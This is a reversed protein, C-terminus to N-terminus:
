NSGTVRAAHAKLIAGLAAHLLQADPVPMVVKPTKDFPQALNDPDRLGLAVVPVDGLDGLGLGGFRVPQSAMQQPCPLYLVKVDSAM